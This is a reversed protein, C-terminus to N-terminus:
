QEARNVKITFTKEVTLGACNLTAKIVADVTAAETNNSFVVKGDAITAYASDSSWSIEVDSFTAGFAPLDYASGDVVSNDFVLKAAETELKTAPTKADANQKLWSTHVSETWSLSECYYSIFPDGTHINNMEYRVTPNTNLTIYNTNEHKENTVFSYNTGVYGYQLMNKLEADSNLAYIIKMCKSYHNNLIAVKEESYKTPDGDDDLQKVISFASLFAQEKTTNPYAKINVFNVKNTSTENNQLNSYHLSEYDAYYGDTIVKVYDNVDLESNYETIANKLEELSEITTMAKIEDESFHLTDRAMAKDIVIYEYHGIVHNNPVTYYANDVLSAALLTPDLTKNLSKYDVNYFDFPAANLALLEDDAYLKDFMDASNILIIDPRESEVTTNMADYVTDAYSKAQTETAFETLYHINLEIHYKEKLYTNINQPVTIKADSSTGEGTIIYFNLKEIQDDTVAGTQYNPLYEGIVDEACGVLTLCVLVICLLLSLLKKM